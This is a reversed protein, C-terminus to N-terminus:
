IPITQGLSREGSTNDTGGTVGQIYPFSWGSVPWPPGTTSPLIPKSKQIDRSGTAHRQYLVTFDSEWATIVDRERREMSCIVLSLDDLERLIDYSIHTDRINTHCCCVFPLFTSTTVYTTDWNDNFADYPFLPVSIQFLISNSLGSTSFSKGPKYAESDPFFLLSLSQVDKNVTNCM